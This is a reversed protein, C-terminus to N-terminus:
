AASRRGASRSGPRASRPSARRRPRRRCPRRRRRSPSRRGRASRRGRRRCRRRAARTSGAVGADRPLDAEGLRLLREDQVVQARADPHLGVALQLGPRSTTTAASSPASSIPKAVAGSIAVPQTIIRAQWRFVHGTPMAVCSGSSRSASRPGARARRDVEEEEDGLLRALDHRPEADRRKSSRTPRTSRSSASSAISCQCARPMSREFRRRSARRAPRCAAAGCARRLVRREGPASSQVSISSRPRRDLVALRHARAEVDAVDVARDAAQERM